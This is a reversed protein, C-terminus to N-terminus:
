KPDLCKTGKLNLKDYEKHTGAWRFRCINSQYDIKAVVRYKNGCINFVVCGDGIISATGYKSKLEHPDKWKAKAVESLIARSMRESDPFNVMFEAVINRGSIVM